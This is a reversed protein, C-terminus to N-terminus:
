TGGSSSKKEVIESHRFNKSQGVHNQYHFFYKGKYEACNMSSTVYAQKLPLRAVGHYQLYPYSKQVSQIDPLLAEGETMLEKARKAVAILSAFASM